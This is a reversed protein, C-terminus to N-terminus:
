SFAQWLNVPSCGAVVSCKLSPIKKLFSHHPFNEVILILYLLKKQTQSQLAIATYKERVLEKMEHDNKM